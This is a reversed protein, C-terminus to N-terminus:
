LPGQQVEVVLFRWLYVLCFAPFFTVLYALYMHSFSHRSFTLLNALIFAQFSALYFILCLTLIQALSIGFLSDSLIDFYIGSLIDAITQYFTLIFIGVELYRYTLFQTLITFLPEPQPDSSSLVEISVSNGFVFSLATSFLYTM